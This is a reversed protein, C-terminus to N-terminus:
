QHMQYVDLDADILSMNWNYACAPNTWKYM